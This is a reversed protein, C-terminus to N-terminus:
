ISTFQDAHIEFTKRVTLVVTRQLVLSAHSGVVGVKDPYEVHDLVQPNPQSEGTVHTAESRGWYNNAVIHVADSPIPAIRVLLM